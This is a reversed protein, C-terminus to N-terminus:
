RATAPVMAVVRVPGGSGGVIKLPLAMLTAGRPPLQDLGTLNELGVVNRGATLRHVPFDASRGYDISATDVGLTVVGREEVMLRVADAGFSPFSLRSADGPTDDGLYARADPWYRSWGTRLLVASGKDIAGHQAEFREVDAVTLRYDRDREAAGSVDIVVAPLVLRALPVQDATQGNADFHIPADLHTGGHEPMCFSFASYFWGGESQGYALTQKEFRTPSTPWFLTREDYAQSLDVLRYGSLDLAAASGALFGLLLGSVTLVTRMM